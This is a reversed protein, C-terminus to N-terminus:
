IKCKEYTKNSGHEVELTINQKEKNFKLVSTTINPLAINNDNQDLKSFFDEIMQNYIKITEEKLAIWSKIKEINERRSQLESDNKVTKDEIEKIQQQYRVIDKQATEVEGDKHQILKFNEIIEVYTM